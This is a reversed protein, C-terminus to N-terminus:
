CRYSRPPSLSPPVLDAGKLHRRSKEWHSFKLQQAVFCNSPASREGLCPEITALIKKHQESLREIWESADVSTLAREAMDRISRATEDADGMVIVLRDESIFDARSFQTALDAWMGKWPKSSVRVRTKAQIWDRHGDAYMVVIDDVDAPAELRVEVVRERPPQHRLDLLDALSRAAVTNQYFIGDQTTSGGHEAM